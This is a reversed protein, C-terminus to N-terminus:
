LAGIHALFDNQPQAVPKPVSRVLTLAPRKPTERAARADIASELEMAKVADRCTIRVSSYFRVNFYDSQIDSGDYNYSVLIAELAAIATTMEASYRDMRCYAHPQDHEFLLREVNHVRIGSVNSVEIRIAGGGSFRECTVSYTAKPLSGDKVAAKIEARILKAVEVRTLDKTAAYKTGYTTNM